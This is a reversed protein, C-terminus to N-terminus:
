SLSKLNYTGTKKDNKSFPEKIKGNGALSGQIVNQIAHFLNNAEKMNLSGADRSPDIEAALLIDGAIGPDIGKIEKESILADVIRGDFEMMLKNLPDMSFKEDLPDIKLNNLYEKREDEAVIEIFTKEDGTIYFTKGDLFDVKLVYDTDYEEGKEALYMRGNFGLKVMYNVANGTTLNIIDSKRNIYIFMQGTLADEFIKKEINTNIEKVDVKLIKKYFLVERIKRLYIEVEAIGTYM